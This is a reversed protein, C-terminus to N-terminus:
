IPVPADRVRRRQLVHVALGLVIAALGGVAMFLPDTYLM